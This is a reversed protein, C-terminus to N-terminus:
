PDGLELGNTQGDGDSDRQCLAQNWNKKGIKDFDSGYQNTKGGGATNIHGIAAVGTNNGNPNLPVYKAHASVSAAFSALGFALAALSPM